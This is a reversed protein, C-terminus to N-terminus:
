QYVPNLKFISSGSALYVIGDPDVAVDLNCGAETLPEDVGLTGDDSIPLTHLVGDDFSCFLLRNNLRELPSNRVVAIGSMGHSDNGSDWIPDIFKGGSPGFSDPHGYNGGATILNVEDFTAPGNEVAFLKGTLEDFALGFPNRFGVAYASSGPFPNDPPVQGDPSLRLIKGVPSSPDQALEPRQTDGVGVYLMGDPGFAMRGAVHKDQSGPIADFVTTQGEAKGGSEVLSVIRNSEAGGDPKRVTYYVFLRHNQAFQPDLALGVVGFEGTTSADFEAVPEALLVGDAGIVRVAGAKAEAFFIRGDPAFQM